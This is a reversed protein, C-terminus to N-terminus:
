KELLTVDWTSGTQMKPQATMVSILTRHNESGDKKYDDEVLAMKHYKAATGQNATTKPVGRPAATPVSYAQAVRGFPLFAEYTLPLAELQPIPNATHTAPLSQSSYSSARYGFIRM